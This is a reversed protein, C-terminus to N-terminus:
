GRCSFVFFRITEVVMTVGVKRTIDEGVKSGIANKSTSMYSAHCSAIRL